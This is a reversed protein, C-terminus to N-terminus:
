PEKRCCWIEQSRRKCWGPSVRCALQRWSVRIVRTEELDIQCNALKIYKIPSNVFRKLESHDLVCSFSSTPITLRCISTVAPINQYLPVSDITKLNYKRHLRIYSSLLYLNGFLM